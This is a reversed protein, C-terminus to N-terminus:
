KLAASLEDALKRMEPTITLGQKRCAEENFQLQNRLSPRLPLESLPKGQLLQAAVKGSQYGWDFYDLGWGVAAGGRIVGVESAFVPLRREEGIRSLVPMANYVTNDAAALFAQIGKDALSVAADRIDNISSVPASLLEINAQRAAETLKAAAHSANAEAPNTLLGLRKVPPPLCAVVIRLYEKMDVPSYFGTLNAPVPRIGVAEPPSVITMVVPPPNPQNMTGKAAAIMAPTTSTAIVKVGDTLFGQVIMPLLSQDGQASRFRLVYDRDAVLGADQLAKLFGNRGEDLQPDELLQMFGLRPISDAPGGSQSCSATLALLGLCFALWPFGGKWFGGSLRNKSQPM